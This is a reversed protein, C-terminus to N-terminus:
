NMSKLPTVLPYRPGGERLRPLDPYKEYFADNVPEVTLNTSECKCCYLKKMKVEDPEPGESLYFVGYGCFGCTGSFFDAM